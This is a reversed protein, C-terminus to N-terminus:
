VLIGYESMLASGAYYVPDVRETLTQESVSYWYMLQGFVAWDHV